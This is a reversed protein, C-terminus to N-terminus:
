IALIHLDAWEAHDPGIDVDAGAALQLVATVMVPRVVMPRSLM